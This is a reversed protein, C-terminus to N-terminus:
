SLSMPPKILAASVPATSSSPKPAPPDSAPWMGCCPRRRASSPVNHSTSCFSSLCQRRRRCLQRLRRDRQQLRSGAEKCRRGAPVNWHRRWYISFRTAQQCGIHAPDIKVYEALPDQLRLWQHSPQNKVHDPAGALSPFLASLAPSSPQSSSDRMTQWATCRHALRM